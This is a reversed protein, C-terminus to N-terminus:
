DGKLNWELKLNVNNCQKLAKWWLYGRTRACGEEHAKWWLYSWTRASEGLKNCHEHAKWVSDWTRACEPELKRAQLAGTGQLAAAGPAQKSEKAVLKRRKTGVAELNNTEPVRCVGLGFEHDSM